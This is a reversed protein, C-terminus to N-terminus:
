VHVCVCRWACFVRVGVHCVRSARVCACRCQDVLEWLDATWLDQVVHQPQGKQPSLPVPVRKSGQPIHLGAPATQPVVVADEGVLLQVAIQGQRLQRSHAASPTALACLFQTM